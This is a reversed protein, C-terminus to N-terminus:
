AAASARTASKSTAQKATAVTKKAQTKATRGTTTAARKATTKTAKASKKATTATAKAGSAATKATTVAGSTARRATDVAGDTASSASRRVAVARKRTVSSGTPAHKPKNSRTIRAILDQVVSVGGQAIGSVNDSIRDVVGAVTGVITNGPGADPLRPHPSTPASKKAEALADGIDALASRSLGDRVKPFFDHEEEKIHHRVNEILVTVKADFREDQPEMAALESLVWKVIHHEELSELVMDVTAPVTERAVPYFIQEEIAAHVSLEEIIRDVINRKEAYARDGTQEYRKFLQEVTKHDARLLSIADVVTRYGDARLEFTSYGSSHSSYGNSM